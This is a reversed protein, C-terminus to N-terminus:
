VFIPVKLHHKIIKLRPISTISGGVQGFSTVGYSLIATSAARFDLQLKWAPVEGIDEQTPNDPRFSEM